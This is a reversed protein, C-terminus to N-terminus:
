DFRIADPQEEIKAKDIGPVALVANVDTFRGNATRREVIAEADKMSLGLVASLDAAPASNIPVLGYYRTLYKAIMAFQDRTAVAGKTAMSQIVNQWDRTTRRAVIIDDVPHCEACIKYTTEEAAVAFAEEDAASPASAPSAASTQAVDQGQSDAARVAIASGLVTAVGALLWVM